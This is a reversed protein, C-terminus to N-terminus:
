LFKKTFDPTDDKVKVFEHNIKQIKLNYRKVIENFAPETHKTVLTLAYGPKDKRGTRGIRHIHFEPKRAVEFNIIMDVQEIHLGRAAVDTTVLVKIARQKFLNLLKTREDQKLEGNLAKANMGNDTLLNALKFTESITNCFVIAKKFRKRKLFSVLIDKRDHFRCYIKEQKIKLPIPEGIELLDYEGIEHNIFEDVKNSITASALIVQAFKNVRTRLYACEDYFGQDFMQDSEDYVLYTVEGVKITKKHLHQILRGPTGILIQNKKTTTRYDGKIERGGYLMGVNIELPECVKRMEKGVQICLERTPVMVLMQLGQKKKIKSINGLLCALTKGSGTRATFVLDRGTMIQPIVQEQVDTPKLYKLERLVELVDKKLGLDAFSTM